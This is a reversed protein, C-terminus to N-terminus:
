AAAASRNGSAILEAQLAALFDGDKAYFANAGAELAQLKREPLGSVAVIRCAPDDSLIIHTAQIGDLRPMDIDMVVVHPKAHAARTIAQLGDLAFGVVEVDPVDRLSAAMSEVFAQDDDVLLVRLPDRRVPFKEGWAARGL